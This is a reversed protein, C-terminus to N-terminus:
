ILQSLSEGPCRAREILVTVVPSSSSGSESATFNYRVIWAHRAGCASMAGEYAGSGLGTSTLVWLQQRCVFFLVIELRLCLPPWAQLTAALNATRALGLQESAVLCDISWPSFLLM